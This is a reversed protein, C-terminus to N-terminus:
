VSDNDNINNDLPVIVMTLCRDYIINYEVVVFVCLCLSGSSPSVRQEVLDVRQMLSGEFSLSM